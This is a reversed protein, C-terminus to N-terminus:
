NGGSTLHLFIDDLLAVVDYKTLSSVESISNVRAAGTEWM